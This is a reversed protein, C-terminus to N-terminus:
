TVLPPLHPLSFHGYHDNNNNRVFRCKIHGNSDVACTGHQGCNLRNSVCLHRVWVLVMDPVDACFIHLRKHFTQM